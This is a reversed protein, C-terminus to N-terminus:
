RSRFSQEDAGVASAAHHLVPLLHRVPLRDSLGTGLHRVDKRWVAHASVALTIWEAILDGLTCWSECHTAALAVTQWLAQAAPSQRRPTARSPLLRLVGLPSAYLATVPWVVNRIRMKQPHELLIDVDIWLFSLGCPAICTYLRQCFVSGATVATYLAHPM